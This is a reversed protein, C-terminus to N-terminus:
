PTAAAPRFVPVASGDVAEAFDLEVRLGVCLRDLDEAVLNTLLTPGDDLTVYAVAYPVKVRRMVTFTYVTGRGESPVWTTRESWCGPCLARPYWFVDGCAECKKILLRRENAADWFPRSEASRIPAPMEKRVADPLSSESRMTM